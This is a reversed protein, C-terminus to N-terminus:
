DLNVLKLDSVGKQTMLEEMAAPPIDDDINMVTLANAGMAKRGLSVGAINVDYKALIALSRRTM